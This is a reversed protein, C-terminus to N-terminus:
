YLSNPELDFKCQLKEFDSNLLLVLRKVGKKEIQKGLHLPYFHM